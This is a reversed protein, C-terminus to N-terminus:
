GLAGAPVEQRLRDLEMQSEAVVLTTQGDLAHFEYLKPDSIQQLAYHQVPIVFRDATPGIMSVGAIEPRDVLDTYLSALTEIGDIELFEMPTHIDPDRSTEIQETEAISVEEHAEVYPEFLPEVDTTQTSDLRAHLNFEPM